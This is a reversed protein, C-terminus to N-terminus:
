VCLRSDIKLACVEYFLKELLSSLRQTTRLLLFGMHFNEGTDCFINQLFYVNIKTHHEIFYRKVKTFSKVDIIEIKIFQLRKHKPKKFVINININKLDFINNRKTYPMFM